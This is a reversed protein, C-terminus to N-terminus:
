KGPYGNERIRTSSIDVTPLGDALTWDPRLEKIEYGPRPYVIPKFNREMWEWDRWKKFNLYSDAGVLLRFHHQPYTETLKRLTDSTFSPDPMGLEVECIRLKEDGLMRNIKDAATKLMELREADPFTTSGDKLPNRKCPMMWVEDALRKEIIGKAVTLHGEHVPSFSGGFLAITM